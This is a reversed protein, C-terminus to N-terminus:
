EMARYKRELSVDFSRALVSLLASVVDHLIAVDHMEHEVDRVRALLLSNIAYYYNVKQVINYWHSIYPVMAAKRRRNSDNETTIM